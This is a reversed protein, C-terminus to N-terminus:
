AHGKFLYKQIISSELGHALFAPIRSSNASPGGKGYPIRHMGLIYGDETTVFHEEVPYGWYKILEPQFHCYLMHLNFRLKTKSLYTCHLQM